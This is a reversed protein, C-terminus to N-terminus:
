EAAMLKEGPALDVERRYRKPTGEGPTYHLPFVLQEVFSKPFHPVEDIGMDKATIVRPPEPRYTGLLRDCFTFFLGFNVDGETGWKVHHLHHVRGISLHKEFPGLAYPVNSHQVTLQVSIAFALLTAVEVPMGFIALPATGLLMDITQHLPHRVMGNFGHLRELGHHVAHLRWLFPIRHSLYHLFSLAFDALVIAMALQALLPWERPWVERLPSHYLSSIIPIMCLGVLSASEYAIGHWLSAHEDGDHSHNWEEHCPLVHEALYATGFVVALLPLLLAYSHGGAVIAFAAANVGLLMFPAYGYRVLTQKWTM